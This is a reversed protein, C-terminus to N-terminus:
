LVALIGLCESNQLGIQKQRYPTFLYMVKSKFNSMAGDGLM